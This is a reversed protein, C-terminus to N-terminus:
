AVHDPDGYKHPHTCQVGVGVLDFPAGIPLEAFQVDVLRLEQSLLNQNLAECRLYVDDPQELARILDALLHEGDLSCDGGQAVVGIVDFVTTMDQLLLSQSPRQVLETGGGVRRAIFVAPLQEADVDYGFRRMFVRGQLDNVMSGQGRIDLLRGHLAKLIRASVSPM